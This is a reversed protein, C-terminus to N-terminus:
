QDEDLDITNTLTSLIDEPIDPHIRIQEPIDRDILTDTDSTQDPDDNSTSPLGIARRPTPFPVPNSRRLRPRTRALTSEGITPRRQYTPPVNVPQQEPAVPQDWNLIYQPHPNWVTGDTPLTRSRQDPPEDWPDHEQNKWTAFTAPSIGLGYTGTQTTRLTTAQPYNSWPFGQFM